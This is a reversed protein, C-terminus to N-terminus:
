RGFRLEYWEGGDARGIEEWGDARLQARLKDVLARREPTEELAALEDALDVDDSGLAEDVTLGTAEDVAKFHVFEGNWWTKIRATQAYTTTTGEDDSGTDSDAGADPEPTPTPTPEIREGGTSITTIRSILLDGRRAVLEFRILGTATEEASTISYRGAVSAGGRRPTISQTTLTYSVDSLREFQQAYAALAASRSM